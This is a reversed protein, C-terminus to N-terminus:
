NGAVVLHVRRNQTYCAEDKETCFPKDKGFSIVTVPNSVGL